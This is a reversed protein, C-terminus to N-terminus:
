GAPAGRGARSRGAGGAGPRRRGRAPTAGDAPARRLTARALLEVTMVVAAAQVALLAVLVLLQVAGAQVPTAGGLLTGVFTGPLAVLGVTRTSDLGPLLAEAAAPRGVMLRAERDLFGLAMAAEVEGRRAALDDLGRRGALVTGTMAGGILIGAVPVVAVGKAPVVDLLVLLAVVPLSAGAVPIACWWGHRSRTLRRAATGSAVVTMALVFLLSLALSRVVAVLVLAILGLQATARVCAVLVDRQLCLRGYAALGCALAVLLVLAVALEPGVQVLPSV